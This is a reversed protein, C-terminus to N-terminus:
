STEYFYIMVCELEERGFCAIRTQTATNIEPLIARSTACHKCAVPVKPREVLDKIFLEFARERTQFAPYKLSHFIRCIAKPFGQVVLFVEIFHCTRPPSFPPLLKM